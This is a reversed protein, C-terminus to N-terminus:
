KSPEQLSDYIRSCATGAIRSSDLAAALQHNLQVSGNFLVRLTEVAKKGDAERFQLEWQLFKENLAAGCGPNCIDGVDKQRAIDPLLPIVPSIALAYGLKESPGEFPVPSFKAVVASAWKKLDPDLKDGDSKLMGVALTLYDRKIGDEAISQQVAYGTLALVIPIAVASLIASISQAKTLFTNQDSM